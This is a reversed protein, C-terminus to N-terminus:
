KAKSLGYSLTEFGSFPVETEMTVDHAKMNYGLVGYQRLLHSEQKYLETNSVSDTRSSAQFFWCPQFSMIMFFPLPSIALCKM